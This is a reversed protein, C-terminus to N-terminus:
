GKEHHIADLDPVMLSLGIPGSDKQTHYRENYIFDSSSLRLSILDCIETPTLRTRSHLTPDGDLFDHILKMADTIPVSPFLATADYSVM